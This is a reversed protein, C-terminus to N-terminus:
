IKALMKLYLTLIIGLAYMIFLAIKIPWLAVTLCLMAMITIGIGVTTGKLKKEAINNYVRILVALLSVGIALTVMLINGYIKDLIRAEQKADEFLKDVLIKRASNFEESTPRRGFTREFHDELEVLNRQHTREAKRVNTPLFIITLCSTILAVIIIGILTWKQKTQTSPLLTTAHGCEECFKSGPNITSGCKVCRMTITVDRGCQPCFKTTDKITTNCSPCTPM